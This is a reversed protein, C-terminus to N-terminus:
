PLVTLERTLLNGEAKARLLAFGDAEKHGHLVIGTLAKRDPKKKGSKRSPLLAGNVWAAYVALEAFARKQEADGYVALHIEAPNEELLLQVAKRVCTQQEYRSKDLDPMIWACLAGSKLNASVPAESIEDSMMKRRALLAELVDRGLFDPKDPFKDLSKDLKPLIVLIHTAKTSHSLPSANQILTALM